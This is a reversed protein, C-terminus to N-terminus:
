WNSQPADDRLNKLMGINVVKAATEEGIDGFVTPGVSKILSSIIIRCDTKAM